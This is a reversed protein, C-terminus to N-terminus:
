RRAKKKRGRLIYVLLAVAALGLVAAGLAAALRWGSLRQAEGQGNEETEVTMGGQEIEGPFPSYVEMEVLSADLKGSSEVGSVRLYRYAGPTELRVTDTGGSGKDKEWLLQWDQGNASAELRYSEGYTSGWKLLIRNVTEEQGLDLVLSGEANNEQAFAFATTYDGDTM